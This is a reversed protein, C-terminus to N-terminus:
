LAPLPIIWPNLFNYELQSEDRDKVKRRNYGNKKCNIDLISNSTQKGM